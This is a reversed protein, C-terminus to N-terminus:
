LEQHDQSKKEEVNSKPTINGKEEARPKPITKSRKRGLNSHNKYFSVEIRNWRLNQSRTTMQDQM